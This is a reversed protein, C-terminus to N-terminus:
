RWRRLRGVWVEGVGPAAPLPYSYQFAGSQLGVSWGGSIPMPDASYDGSSGSAAAAAVVMVGSSAPTVAQLALAAPDTAAVGVVSDGVSAPASLSTALQAPVVATIVNTELNKSASLPVRGCAPADPVAAHCEPVAFLQLRDAYSAGFAEAFGSFDLSVKLNASGAPPTVRFGVLGEWAQATGPDVVDVDVPASRMAGSGDVVEGVWVPSTGARTLGAPMTQAHSRGPLPFVASPLAAAPLMHSSPAAVKPQPLPKVQPVAAPPGLPKGTGAQVAAPGAAAQADPQAAV